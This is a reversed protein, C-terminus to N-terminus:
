LTEIITAIAGDKAPVTIIDAAAKTSVSANGVAYGIDAMELMQIDNEYDGVAIATHCGEREKVRNLAYGKGNEKKLIELSVEWSRVFIYGEYGSNELIKQAKLTKESDSAVMVVKYIESNLFDERMSIYEEPTYFKAQDRGKFFAYAREFLGEKIFFKDLIEIVRKDLFDEHLVEDTDPHKIVAGNLTIAYTNPHIRDFFDRMFELSRGSCVTFLGGGAQFARIASIDRDNLKGGVYLTGDWDSAILIGDYRKQM